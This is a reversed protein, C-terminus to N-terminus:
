YALHSALTFSLMLSAIKYGRCLACTISIHILVLVCMYNIKKLVLYQITWIFMSNRATKALKSYFNLFLLRSIESCTSSIIRLLFFFVNLTLSIAWYTFTCIGLGSLSLKTGLVWMISPSLGRECITREDGCLVSHTSVRVCVWLCLSMLM